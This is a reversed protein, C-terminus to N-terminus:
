FQENIMEAITVTLMSTPSHTVSFVLQIIIYTSLSLLKAAPFIPLVSFVHIVVFIRSLNATCSM